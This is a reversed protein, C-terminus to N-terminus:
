DFFGRKKKDMERGKKLASGGLSKSLVATYM